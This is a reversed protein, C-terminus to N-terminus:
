SLDSIHPPVCLFDSTGVSCLYGTWLLCKTLGEGKSQVSRYPNAIGDMWGNM